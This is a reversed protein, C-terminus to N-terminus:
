LTENFQELRSVIETIDPGESPDSRLCQRVLDQLVRDTVLAIQHERNQYDPFTQICMECLLVGFSYVDIKATQNAPRQVEPASFAFCWPGISMYMFQEEFKASGYDSVKGRWQGDQRWLLVNSSFPIEEDNTAGIFQLLCPHRCRSAIDIERQFLSQNYPSNIEEHIRKVAVFCGCYKGEFVEGWGGVGLSKGTLQIDDRSIVWDHSQTGLKNQLNDVQQRLNANEAEIEEFQHQFDTRLSEQEELQMRVNAPQEERERLQEHQQGLQMRLQTRLNEEQQEKETLQQRIERMELERERLQEHFGIEKMEIEATEERSRQEMETLQRLLTQKEDNKESLQQDMESLRRQLDLAQEEKERLQKVFETERTEKEASEETM